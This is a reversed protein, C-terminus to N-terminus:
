KAMPRVRNLVAVVGSAIAVVTAIAWLWTRWRPERPPVPPSLQIAVSADTLEAARAPSVFAPQHHRLVAKVDDLLPAQAEAVAARVEERCAELLQRILIDLSRNVIGRDGSRSVGLKLAVFTATAPRVPLGGAIKTLAFRSVGYRRSAGFHGHEHLARRAAETLGPGAVTAGNNTGV